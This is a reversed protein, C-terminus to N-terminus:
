KVRTYARSCFVFPQETGIHYLTVNNVVTNADEIVWLAVRSFKDNEVSVTIVQEDEDVKVSVKSPGMISDNFPVSEPGTIPLKVEESYIWKSYTQIFEKDSLTLRMTMSNSFKSTLGRLVVGCGAVRLMEDFDDSRDQIV